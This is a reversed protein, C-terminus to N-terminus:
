GGSGSLNPPASVDQQEGIASRSLRLVIRRVMSRQRASGEVEAVLRVATEEDIWLTGKLKLPEFARRTSAIPGGALKVKYREARRGEIIDLGTEHLDIRDRFMELAQEWANWTTQLQVRYPEADQRRAWADGQRLYAQGQYVVVESVVRGDVVRKYRFDDFSEWALDIVEDHTEEEGSDFTDTRTISALFHHPGIGEISAFTVQESAEPLSMQPAPPEPPDCAVLLFLVLSAIM